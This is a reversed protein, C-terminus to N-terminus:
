GETFYQINYQKASSATEYVSYIFLLLTLNNDMKKHNQGKCFQEVPIARDDLWLHYIM